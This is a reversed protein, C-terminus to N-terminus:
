VVCQFLIADWLMLHNGSFVFKHSHDLILFDTYVHGLLVITLNPQEDHMFDTVFGVPVFKFTHMTNLSEFSHLLKQMLYQNCDVLSKVSVPLKKYPGYRM